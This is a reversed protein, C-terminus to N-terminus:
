RVPLEVSLVLMGDHQEASVRGGWAAVLRGVLPLGLGPGRYQKPV